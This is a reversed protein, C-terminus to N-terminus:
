KGKKNNKNNNNNNKKKKKKIKIIVEQCNLCLPSVKEVWGMKSSSSSNFTFGEGECANRNGRTVM